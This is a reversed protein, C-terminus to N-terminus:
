NPPPSEVSAELKELCEELSCADIVSYGRLELAIKVITVIEPVDDVVMVKKNM